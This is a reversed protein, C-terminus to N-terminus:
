AAPPSPPGPSSSPGPSTTPSYPVFIARVPDYRGARTPQAPGLRPTDRDDDPSPEKLFSTPPSSSDRTSHSGSRSWTASHPRDTDWQPQPQLTFPPPLGLSSSSSAYSQAPLNHAFTPSPSRSSPSMLLSAHSPTTPASRALMPSSSHIDLRRSPQNFILPPLTRSPDNHTRRFPSTGEQNESDLTRPGPLSRSSYPPAPLDRSYPDNPALHLIPRERQSSRGPMGPGLLQPPAEASGFFQESPPYGSYAHPMVRGEREGPPMTHEAAYPPPANSFSAYQLPGTQGTQSHDSQSGPRRAKQRQNQFWIQVKRASLGISRGVEERMATTPFRSQALLAHLVASQHPTTLTRTRKKKLPAVSPPSTESYPSRSEPEETDAMGSQSDSSRSRSTDEPSQRRMRKAMPPSDPTPRRPILDDPSAQSSVFSHFHTFQQPSSDSSERSTTPASATTATTDDTPPRSPTPGSSLINLPAYINPTPTVSRSKSM